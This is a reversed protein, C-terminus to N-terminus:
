PLAEYAPTAKLKDRRLSNSLRLPARQSEKLSSTRKIPTSSTVNLAPQKKKTIPGSKPVKSPSMIEQPTSVHSAPKVALSKSGPVVPQSKVPLKSNSARRTSVKAKLATNPTTAATTPRARTATKAPGRQATNAKSSTAPPPATTPRRSSPVRKKPVAAAAAAMKAAHVPCRSRVSNAQATIANLIDDGDYKKTRFPKKKKQSSRLTGSWKHVKEDRTQGETKDKVDREDWIMDDRETHQNAIVRKLNERRGGYGYDGDSAKRIAKKSPLVISASQLDHMAPIHMGYSLPKIADEIAKTFVAERVHGESPLNLGKAREQEFVEDSASRVRQKTLSPTSALSQKGSDASDLRTASGKLISRTQKDQEM